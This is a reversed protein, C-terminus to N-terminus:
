FLGHWGKIVEVNGRAEVLIDRGRRKRGEQAVQQGDKGARADQIGAAAGAAQGLHQRL